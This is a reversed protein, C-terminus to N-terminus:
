DLDFSARHVLKLNETVLDVIVKERSIINDFIQLIDGAFVTNKKSPINTLAKKLQELFDNYSEIEEIKQSFSKKEFAYNCQM